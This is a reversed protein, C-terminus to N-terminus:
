LHKRIKLYLFENLFKGVSCQQVSTAGKNQTSFGYPCPQCTDQSDDSKYTGQACLECTGSVSLETGARCSDPFNSFVINYILLSYPVPHIYM